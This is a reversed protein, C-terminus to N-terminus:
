EKVKIKKLLSTRISLLYGKIEILCVKKQLSKSVVCVSEGKSFGLEFFRRLVADLEGDFGVIKYVKGKKACDLTIM